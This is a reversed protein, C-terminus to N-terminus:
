EKSSGAPCVLEEMQVGYLKALRYLTDISCKRQRNSILWYGTPTKYGLESALDSISYGKEARLREIKDVDIRVLEKM